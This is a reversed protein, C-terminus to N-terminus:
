NSKTRNKLYNFTEQCYMKRWLFPCGKCIRPNSLLIPILCDGTQKLTEEEVTKEESTGLVLHKREHAIIHFGFQCEFCDKRVFITPLALLIIWSFSISWLITAIVTVRFPTPAYYVFMVEFFGLGILVLLFPVARNRTMCFALATTRLFWLKKPIKLILKEPKTNQM